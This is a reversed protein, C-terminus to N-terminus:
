NLIMRKEVWKNARVVELELNDKPSGSLVKM